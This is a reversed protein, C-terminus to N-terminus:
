IRSKLFYIIKDINTKYELNFNNNFTLDNRYPTPFKIDIGVVNKNKTYIKKNNNKVLRAHNTKLHIQVYDQFIQRNKKQIEPFISLISCVVKFGKCELFSCLRVIFQANVKRDKKSFGLNNSFAFSRVEDGDILIKKGKIKKLLKKAYFSKGSGSKGIIWIVM